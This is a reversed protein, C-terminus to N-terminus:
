ASRRFALWLARLGRWGYYIPSLLRSRAGYRYQMYAWPPFVIQQYTALRQRLSQGRGRKWFVQWIRLRDQQSIQIHWAEEPAAQVKALVQVADSPLFAGFWDATVELWYRVAGALHSVAARSVVEQWDWQAGYHKILMRLDFLWILNWSQTHHLLLHGCAHILHDIPDLVRFTQGEFDVQRARRWVESLNLQRFGVEHFLSWHAEIIIRQDNPYDRWVHLHAPFATNQEPNLGMDRYGSAQFIQKVTDIDAEAILLDLDSMPRTFLSPYITTGLAMGKLVLPEVGAARLHALLDGLEKLLLLNQATTHYSATRFVSQVDPALGTLCNAHQLRDCVVPALGQDALWVARELTLEHTGFWQRLSEANGAAILPLLSTAWDM